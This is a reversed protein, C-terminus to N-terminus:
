MPLSRLMRSSVGSFQWVSFSGCGSRMWDRDPFAAGRKADRNAPWWAARATGRSCVAFGSQLASEIFQALASRQGHLGAVRQQNKGIAADVFVVSGDRAQERQGGHVVQQHAFFRAGLNRQDDFGALRAFDHVKRQQDAVAGARDIGIERELADLIQGPAAFQAIADSGFERDLVEHLGDLLAQQLGERLHADRRQLAIM